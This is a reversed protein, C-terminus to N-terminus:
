GGSSRRALSAVWSWTSSALFPEMPTLTDAARLGTAEPGAPVPVGPCGAGDAHGTDFYAVIHSACDRERAASGHIDDDVTFVTGGIAAQTDATWEYASISEYRHGSLQLSGGTHLLRVTQVPLSWGACPPTFSSIVGTVPYRAVRDQYAAWASDFDRAGDDSNCFIAQGATPNDREPAGPPPPPPPADDFLAKYSAPATPGTADRLDALVRATVPWTVSPGASLAAIAFGDAPMPMDTFTRPHADFDQRLRALAAAVQEGTTGFGYAQNFQAVWAAMRAFDRATARARGAEFADMGPDPSAVSDLWMRAVKGPFLSRYVTGLQTGWSVGFYSLKHERLSERIQDLDRAVNATTLQSIFEPDTQVCAQNAQVRRAYAQRAEDETIGGVAATRAQVGMPGPGRDCDVKTSYGVGRPDFGILDYRENLRMTASHPESLSFPMLYGSGGPGGPNVAVSGLRHAQDIAKLRTVAITIWRGHPRAYDLPVSLTGCDTRAMAARFWAIDQFGLWHVLEDSYQPCAHWTMTPREAPQAALATAGGALNTLGLVALPAAVGVLFRRLLM